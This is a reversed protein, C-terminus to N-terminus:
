CRQRREIDDGFWELLLGDGAEGGAAPLKKVAQVNPMAAAAERV